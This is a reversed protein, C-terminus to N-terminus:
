LSAASRDVWACSWRVVRHKPHQESWAALQPQATTMCGILGIEPLLVVAREHCQDPMATLCAVFVLQIM